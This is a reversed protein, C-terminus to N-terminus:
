TVYSVQSIQSTDEPNAMALYRITDVPDKSAGKQGDANTWHSLSFITNTCRESVYLRPASGLFTIKGTGEEREIKDDDYDLLDNVLEVSEEVRTTGDLAGSQKGAPLFDLGLKSFKIILTESAEHEMTPTNGTRSDMIRNGDPIHIRGDKKGELKALEKEVREFEEVYAQIGFGFNHQGSGKDGDSKAGSVAWPGPFGVSPIYDSEMPWERAIFVQGLPNVKAWIIFFNRGPCPDVVCYWTGVKPLMSPPRVNASVSFKPFRANEMKTAVGYIKWLIEDRTMSKANEKFGEYNGAHLNDTPHMYFVAKRKDACRLIRPVKEFGAFEGTESKVPLLEAEVEKVITANDVFAAVTPTHGFKPSFTILQVGQYLRSVLHPPFRMAPNAKRQELLAKYEDIYERTEQARSHLRDTIGEVWPLSVNEDVSAFYPRPGELTALEASHYRFELVTGNPYGVVKNTFGGHTTFIIKQYRNRKPKVGPNEPRYELPLYTYVAQQMVRISNQEDTSFAWVLWFKNYVAVRNLCRAAFYSKGAGQGGLCLVEIAVGPNDVRLECTVWDIDSWCEPELGERFADMQSKKIAVERRKWTEVAENMTVKIWRGGKLLEVIGCGVDRVELDDLWRVHTQKSFLVQLREFDSQPPSEDSM